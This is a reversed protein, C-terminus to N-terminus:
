IPGSFLIMGAVMSGIIIGSLNVTEINSTVGLITLMLFFSLILEIVFSQLISGTPTTAGLNQNEPFLLTSLISASIAGIFQASIYAIVEKKPILKRIALGITVAPNIHSGSTSGFIYIIAIVIIGFSVSIGILGLCGGTQQDVIVAGTGFFM